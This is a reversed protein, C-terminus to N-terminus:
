LQGVVRFWVQTRTSRGQTVEFTNPDVGYEIMFEKALDIDYLHGENSYQTFHLKGFTERCSGIFVSDVYVNIVYGVSTCREFKSVM